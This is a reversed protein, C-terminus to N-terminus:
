SSKTRLRRQRFLTRFREWVLRGSEEFGGAAGATKKHTKSALGALFDEM